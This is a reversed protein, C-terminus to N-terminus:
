IIDIAFIKHEWPVVVSPAQKVVTLVICTTYINKIVAHFILSSLQLVLSDTILYIYVAYKHM